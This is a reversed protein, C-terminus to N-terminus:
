LFRLKVAIYDNEDSFFYINSDKLTPDLRIMYVKLWHENNIFTWLRRQSFINYKMTPEINLFAHIENPHINMEIQYKCKSYKWGSEFYDRFIFHFFSYGYTLFLISVIIVIEVM